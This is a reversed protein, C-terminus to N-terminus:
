EFEWKYELNVGLEKEVSQAKTLDAAQTTSEYTGNLFLNKQVEYQTTYYETKIPGGFSRGFSTTLKPSWQKTLSVTNVLEENNNDIGINFNFEM